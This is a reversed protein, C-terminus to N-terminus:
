FLLHRHKPIIKQVIKSMKLLEAVCNGELHSEFSLDLANVQHTQSFAHSYIVDLSVLEPDHVRWSLLGPCSYPYITTLTVGFRSWSAWLTILVWTLRWHSSLWRFYIVLKNWRGFIFSQWIGDVLCLDIAEEKQQIIVEACIVTIQQGTQSEFFPTLYPNEHKRTM